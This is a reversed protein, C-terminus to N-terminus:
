AAPEICGHDDNRPSNVRQSVATATMEEAPYPRLLPLLRERDQTEPDLWEGYSEPPCSSPCGSTYPGSWSM